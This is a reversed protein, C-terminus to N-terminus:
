WQRCWDSGLAPHTCIERRTARPIGWGGTCRTNFARIRKDVERRLRLYSGSGRHRDAEEVASELRTADTACNGFRSAEADNRRTREAEDEAQKRAEEARAAEIVAPREKMEKCIEHGASAPGQRNLVLVVMWIDNTRSYEPEKISGEIEAAAIKCALSAEMDQLQVWQQEGGYKRYVAMLGGPKAIHAIAKDAEARSEMSLTVVLYQVRPQATAATPWSALVTALLLALLGFLRHALAM